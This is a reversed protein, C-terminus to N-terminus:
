CGANRCAYFATLDDQDTDGDHDFDFNNAAFAGLAIAEDAADVVGDHNLDCACEPCNVTACATSFGSYTGGLVACVGSTVDVCVYM